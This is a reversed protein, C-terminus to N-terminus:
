ILVVVAAVPAKDPLIVDALVPAVVTLVAIVPVTFAKGVIVPVAFTQIPEVVTNVPEPVAAALLAQADDSAVFAVIFGVVVDPVTVGTAAPDVM